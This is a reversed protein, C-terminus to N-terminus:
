WEDYATVDAHDGCACRIVIKTGLSTPTIEYTYRGGIDGVDVGKHAAEHKTMFASIREDERTPIPITRAMGTRYVL